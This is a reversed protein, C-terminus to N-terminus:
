KEKERAEMGFTLTTQGIVLGGEGCILAKAGEFPTKVRWFDNQGDGDKDSATVTVNCKQPNDPLCGAMTLYDEQEFGTLHRMCSGWGNSDGPVGAFSSIEIRASSLIIDFIMLQEGPVGTDMEFVDPCAAFPCTGYPRAAVRVTWDGFQGTEFAAVQECPDTDGLDTVGPIPECEFQLFVDRKPSKQGEFTMSILAPDGHAMVQVNGERHVYDDFDNKLNDFELDDFEIVLQIKGPGGGSGGDGGASCDEPCKNANEGKECIDNGCVAKAAMALTFTGLVVLTSVALLAGVRHILTNVSLFGWSWGKKKM